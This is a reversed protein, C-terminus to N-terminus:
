KEGEAQERTLSRSDYLSWAVTPSSTCYPYAPRTGNVRPM